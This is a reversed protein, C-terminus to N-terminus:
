AFIAAEGRVLDKTTGEEQCELNEVRGLTITVLQAYDGGFLEMGFVEDLFGLGIALTLTLALFGPRACARRHACIAVDHIIGRGL